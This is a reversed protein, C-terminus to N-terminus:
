AAPSFGIEIASTLSLPNGSTVAQPAPVPLTALLRSTAGDVLAWHTATGTADVTGDTFTGIEIKRGGGTRPAQAGITPSAKTGLKYTSSAEAYTTPEQSCLYLVPSAADRIEQLGADLVDNSLTTM